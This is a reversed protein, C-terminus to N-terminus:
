PVRLVVNQTNYRYTRGTGPVTTLVPLVARWAVPCGRVPVVTTKANSLDGLPLPRNNQVRSLRDTLDTLSELSKSKRGSGTGERDKRFLVGSVLVLV